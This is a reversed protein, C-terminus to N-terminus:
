TMWPHGKGYQRPQNMKEFKEKALIKAKEISEEDIEEGRSMGDSPM